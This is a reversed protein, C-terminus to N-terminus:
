RPDYGYKGLPCLEPRVIAFVGQDIIRNILFDFVPRKVNQFAYFPKLKIRVRLCSKEADFQDKIVRM